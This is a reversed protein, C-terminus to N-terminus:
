EGLWPIIEGTVFNAYFLCERCTQNFGYNWAEGNPIFPNFSDYVATQAMEFIFTQERSTPINAEQKAYRLLTPAGSPRGGALAGSRGAL